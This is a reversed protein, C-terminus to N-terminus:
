HPLTGCSLQAVFVQDGRLRIDRLWGNQVRARMPLPKGRSTFIGRLRAGTCPARLSVNEARRDHATGTKEVVEDPRSSRLWGVVIVSKDEREFMKVVAQSPNPERLEQHLQRTPQAFLQNFFRVAFLAPKPRGNVDELGLHDNVLDKGLRKDNPPFDDIRYWGTVSLENSALAMVEMKFLMNAQYVRTHEYAYNVKGGYVSAQNRRFRYDPYGMENLWLDVGSDDARVMQAVAPVWQAFITEMPLNLWSEPYAHVAVVDVYRDLHYDTVLAQLFKSPGYAMGGLVLVAQPDADRIRRSATMTLQAFEEATGTWYDKNDPENWIEWSLIRGRYRAAIEFMFDGYLKPDRAPQKWFDKGDQAAWKPTYAVYPILQIHSQEALTVLTDWFEWHFQGQQPEIGNWSFACRLYRAHALQAAKLHRRVRSLPSTGDFYDDAVAAAM